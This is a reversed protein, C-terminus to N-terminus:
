QETVYLCLLIYDMKILILVYILERTHETVKTPEKMIGRILM